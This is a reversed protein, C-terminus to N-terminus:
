FDFRLEISPINKEQGAKTDDDRKSEDPSPGATKLVEEMLSRMEPEMRSALDKFSPPNVKVLELLRLATEKYISTGENKARTLLAPVLLAMAAPVANAPIIPSGITSVLTQVIAPRTNDPDIPPENNPGPIGTIFTLLKPYLIRAVVEDTTFNPNPNLLLSRLCGAAVGGLGVDQLCDLIEKLVRSILPDNPPIVSGCNTLLITLSLLTNKACPVSSEAERRQAVTLIELFRALCGRIQRGAVAPDDTPENGDSKPPPRAVRQIFRKFIPLIQPVVGAQCSGTALITSFIHLICAHLDARIISPFVSTIDVLSSLSVHILLIAEDSIRARSKPSSEGLNPLVGALVLIINRTLEFLQEIDDSLHNTDSQDRTASPHHLSLNRVISVIVTQISFNETMVLRDLIDITESFVADQYVANGAVSPHLIKQLAQLIDLTQTSRTGSQTVLADFALGFLVFFFAVPEDRYNIHNGKPKKEGNPQSIEKGDEEKPKQQETNGNM